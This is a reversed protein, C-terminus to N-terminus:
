FRLAVTAGGEVPLAAGTVYGSLDSALFLMAGAVDEPQCVRGLPAAKEMVATRRALAEPGLVARRDRSPSTLGSPCVCNARIGQAAHDAAIQRTLQLVGAKSVGYATMAPLARLVGQSAINVIVGRGQAQMVALVAKCTLFVAKLNVAMIRDWDAESTELTTTAAPPDIGFTNCLVDVGGLAALTQEVMRQAEAARTLDAQIRCAAPAAATGPEEDRADLDALALRAGHTAFLRAVARGVNSGAGTVLVTKGELLKM